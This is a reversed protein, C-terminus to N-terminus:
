GLTGSCFENIAYGTRSDEGRHVTMRCFRQRLGSDMQESRLVTDWVGLEELEVDFGEGDVVGYCHDDRHCSDRMGAEHVAGDADIFRFYSHNRFGFTAQATWVSWSQDDLTGHVFRYGWYRIPDGRFDYRKCYALGTLSRGRYSVEARMDPHHLGPGIPSPGYMTHRPTLTLSLDRGVLISTAEDPASVEFGPGRLDAYPAGSQRLPEASNVLEAVSGDYVWASHHWFSPTRFVRVAFAKDECFAHYQLSDHWGSGFPIQLM